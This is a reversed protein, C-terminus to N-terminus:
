GDIGVMGAEPYREGSVADIPVVAEIADIEEGTLTIDVAGINEMLYNTRRTGPIPVIDDGKSLLWALALQATTVGRHHAIAEVAEVLRRNTDFNDGQFRPTYRRFDGAELREVDTITGTLFGRGLPSYAVFGIGLERIASLTKQEVRRTWLSYESQVATLPHVAHARRITAESAESIGIYRVKGQRVLEALAGVTEEIPVSTDVRHIYYLDIVERRLRKLSGEASARVYEPRGSITREYSGKQRQIGFKTAIFVEGSWGKLAEAILMENHGHGYMDATDLMTIGNRLAELILEKSQADDSTGYFESMGMCGLGIASVEPGNLGLRRKKM